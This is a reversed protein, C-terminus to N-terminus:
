PPVSGAAAGGGSFSVVAAVAGVAVGADLAASWVAEADVAGDPSVVDVAEVASEGTECLEAGDPAAVASAGAACIALVSEDLAAAGAAAAM